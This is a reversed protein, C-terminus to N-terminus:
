GEEEELLEKGVWGGQEKGKGEGQGRRGGEAEELGVGAGKQGKGGAEEQAM